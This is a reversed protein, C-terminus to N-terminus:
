CSAGYLQHRTDSSNLCMGSTLSPSCAKSLTMMTSVAAPITAARRARVNEASNVLRRWEKLQVTPSAGQVPDDLGEGSFPNEVPLSLREALCLDV